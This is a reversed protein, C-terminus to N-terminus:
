EYGTKLFICEIPLFRVQLVPSAVRDAALARVENASLEDRLVTVFRGAAETFGGPTSRLTPEKSDQVFVSKM